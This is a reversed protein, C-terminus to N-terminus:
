GEADDIAKIWKTIQSVSIDQLKISLVLGVADRNGTLNNKVEDYYRGKRHWRNLSKSNYVELREDDLNIIYAWECFTTDFLFDRYDMYVGSALLKEPDQDIVEKEDDYPIDKLAEVRQKTRALWSSYGHDHIGNAIFEMMMNGLCDPYSDADNYAIRDAGGVRFGIAGRTSM